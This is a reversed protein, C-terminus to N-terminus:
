FTRVTVILSLSKTTSSVVFEKIKHLELPKFNSTVDHLSKFTQTGKWCIPVSPDETARSLPKGKIDNMIM